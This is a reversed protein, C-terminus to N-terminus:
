IDYSRRAIYRGGMSERFVEEGEVFEAEVEFVRKRQGVGASRWGEDWERWQGWAEEVLRKLAQM